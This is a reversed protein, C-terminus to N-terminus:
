PNQNTPLSKRYEAAIQRHLPIELFSQRLSDDTIHNATKLLEAQAARLADAAEPRGLAHLARYNLYHARILLEGGWSTLEHFAHQCQKQAGHFDNLALLAEAFIIRGRPFPSHAQRSAIALAQQAYESAKHWQQQALSLEALVAFCEGQRRHDNASLQLAEELDNRALEYDRLAVSISGLLRKTTAVALQNGLQTFLTEAQRAQHLAQQYAGLSNLAIALNLLAYAMGYQDGTTHCIEWTRQFSFVAAQYNGVQWEVSGQTYWLDSERELIGQETALQLAKKLYNQAAHLDGIKRALLALNELAGLRDEPDPAIQAVREFGSSATAFDGLYYSALSCELLARTEGRLDHMARYLRLAQQAEALEERYKGLHEYLDAYLLHVQAQRGLSYAAVTSLRQLDTEIKDTLQGLQISLAVRHELLIYEFEQCKSKPLRRALISLLHFGKTVWTLAEPYQARHQCEQVTRLLWELAQVLQGGQEYHEALRGALGAAAPDAYVHELAQAIRRHLWIRRPEELQNYVVERFKDHAFEYRGGCEILLGQSTLEALHAFLEEPIGEWAAELVDLEIQVACAVLQLIRQAVTSARRVRRELLQVASPALAVRSPDALRWRAGERVFAGNEFLAQLVATAFLPNGVSERYLRGGFDATTELEDALNKVLDQIEHEGLRQLVIEDLLGLRSGQHRVREVGHQPSLEESRATGLILIPENTFREMLYCLFDLSNSDAWQLDDLLILLPAHRLTLAKLISFLTEFLRYQRHEAPLAVSPLDSFVRRLEPLIESLEAIWPPQVDALDASQLKLIGERLAEVWLHLLLPNELEYCRGTLTYAGAYEHAWHLFEESLRTKGVGAEGIILVVRGAGSRTKALASTLQDWEHQRGVFPPHRIKAPVALLAKETIPEPYVREVGPVNEAQIQRFIEETQSSPREGLERELVTRCREYAQRARARDGACFAYMMLQRYLTEHLPSETVARELYSLASRYQGRRALSDALLSLVEVFRERFRERIQLAWEEYRDEALYEGRYLAVAREFSDIAEDFKGERHARRGHEELQSFEEADIWCDSGARLVYGGRQTQIYRSQEGRELSPELIKRLETVRSRLNSAASRLSLEEGPWLYEIM